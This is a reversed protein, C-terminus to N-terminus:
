YNVELITFTIFFYQFTIQLILDCITIAMKPKERIRIWRYQYFCSAMTNTAMCLICNTPPSGSPPTIHPPDSSSFCLPHLGPFRSLAPWHLPVGPSAHVRPLLLSLLMCNGWHCSPGWWWNSPFSILLFESTFGAVSSCVRSIKEFGIWISVSYHFWNFLHPFPMSKMARSEGVLAMDPVVTVETAFGSFPAFVTLQAKALGPLFESRTWRM